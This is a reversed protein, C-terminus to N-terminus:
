RKLHWFVHEKQDHWYTNKYEPKGAGFKAYEKLRIGFNLFIIKNSIDCKKPIICFVKKSEYYRIYNITFGYGPIREITSEIITITNVM